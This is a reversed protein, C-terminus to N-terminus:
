LFCLKKDFLYELFTLVRNEKDPDFSSRDNAYHRIYDRTTVIMGEPNLLSGHLHIVTNSKNLNDLTLDQVRHVITRKNPTSAIKPDPATADVSVKPVIIEEDLWEDYNTTVFTKGLVSLSGYLQVGKPDNMKGNPHFLSKFDISIGYEEQLGRAISLKIRPSQGQLQDLQAHSFKGARIFQKLAEDAFEPWGPGGALRSAGAGVFPILTGRQAAERLGKLAADTLKFEVSMEDGFLVSKGSVYM